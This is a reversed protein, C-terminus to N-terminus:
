GSYAFVVEYLLQAELVIFQMRIATKLDAHAGRGGAKHVDASFVCGMLEPNVLSIITQSDSM